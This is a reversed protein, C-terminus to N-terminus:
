SLIPKYKENRKIVAFMRAVIKARLANIVSMKNKGEAVKREYYKKLEGGIRHTVAVAALHLLRKMVKDARHSVRAKSHLSSGSSYSFPAVGAYCNFKRPDDFRTFAETAIIMNTAVVRGVGDISMLLERQRFLLVIKRDEPTTSPTYNKAKQFQADVIELIQNMQVKHILNQDNCVMADSFESQSLKLEITKNNETEM